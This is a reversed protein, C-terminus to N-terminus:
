DSSSLQDAFRKHGLQRQILADAAPVLELLRALDETSLRPATENTSLADCFTKALIMSSLGDGISHSVLLVIELSTGDPDLIAFCRSQHDDLEREPSLLKLVLEDGTCDVLRARDERTAAASIIFRVEERTNGPTIRSSLMPLKSRCCQWAKDLAQQDVQFGDKLKLRLRVFNDATGAFRGDLYFKYELGGLAREFTKGDKQLRWYLDSDSPTTM